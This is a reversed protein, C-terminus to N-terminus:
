ILMLPCTHIAGGQQFEPISGNTFNGKLIYFFSNKYAMLNWYTTGFSSRIILGIGFVALTSFFFLLSANIPSSGVVRRHLNWARTWPWDASLLHDDIRWKDLPNDSPWGCRFELQFINNKFVPIQRLLSIMKCIILIIGGAKESHFFDNCLRTVKM